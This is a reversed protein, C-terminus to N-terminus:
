GPHEAAGSEEKQVEALPPPAGRTPASEAGAGAAAGRSGKHPTPRVNVIAIIGGSRELEANLEGGVLVALGAIYLWLLFVVVAGLGGYM